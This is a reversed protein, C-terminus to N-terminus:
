SLLVPYFISGGHKGFHHNSSSSLILVTRIGSEMTIVHKLESSTRAPTLTQINATANVEVIHGHKELGELMYAYKKEPLIYNLAAYEFSFFNQNYTLEIVNKSM